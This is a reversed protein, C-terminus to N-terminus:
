FELWTGMKLAAEGPGTLPAVVGIELRAPGSLDYVVSSALKTSFDSDDRAELRFQNIWAWSAAPRLGLTLDLKGVIEPTLYAYEVSTLEQRVIVRETKGAVRVRGEATVWGGEWPGSIGRGWMLAIQSLPLLEGDRRIAGFGMAYSLKNPGQGGDLSKQYWALVTTEGVNTHGVELGLTRRRSLGYETYVSAYSNGAEDREGSLSLFVKGEDRPWPGAQVAGTLGGVLFLCSVTTRAFM